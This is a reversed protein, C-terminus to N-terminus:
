RQVLPDGVEGADVPFVLKLLIVPADLAPDSTHAPELAEDRCLAETAAVIFKAVVEARATAVILM